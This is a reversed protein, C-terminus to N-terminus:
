MQSNEGRPVVDTAYNAYMVGGSPLSNAGPQRAPVRQWVRGRIPEARPRSGISTRLRRTSVGCTSSNNVSVTGLPKYLFAAGSESADVCKSISSVGDDHRYAWHASHQGCRRRFTLSTQTPNTRHTLLAYKSLFNLLKVGIRIVKSTFQSFVTAIVDEYAVRRRFISPNVHIKM